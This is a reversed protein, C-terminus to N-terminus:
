GPSKRFHFLGGNRSSDMIIKLYILILVQLQDVLLVYGQWVASVYLSAQSQLLPFPKDSEHEAPYPNFDHQAFNENFFILRLQM